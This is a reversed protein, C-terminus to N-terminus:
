STTECRSPGNLHQTAHRNRGHGLLEDGSSTSTAAPPFPKRSLAPVGAAAQEPEGQLILPARATPGPPLLVQRGVQRGAADFALVTDAQGNRQPPLLFFRAPFGPGADATTTEVPTWGCRGLVRVREATHSVSGALGNAKSGPGAAYSLGLDFSPTGPHSDPLCGGGEDTRPTVPLGLAAMCTVSGLEPRDLYRGRQVVLTRVRGPPGADTVARAPGSPRIGFMRRPLQLERIIPSATTSTPGPFSSSPAAAGPGVAGGTGPWIREGALPLVLVAAM